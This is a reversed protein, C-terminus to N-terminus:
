HSLMSHRLRKVFAEYCIIRLGILVDHPDDVFGFIGLNWDFPVFSINNGSFRTM